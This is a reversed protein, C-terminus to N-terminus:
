LPAGSEAVNPSKLVVAYKLLLLKLMTEFAVNYSTVNEWLPILTVQEVGEKTAFSVILTAPLLIKSNAYM